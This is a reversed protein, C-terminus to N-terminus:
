DMNPDDDIGISFSSFLSDEHASGYQAWAEAVLKCERCEGCGVHLIGGVNAPTCIEIESM